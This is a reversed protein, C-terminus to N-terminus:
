SLLNANLLNITASSLRLNKLLEAGESHGIHHSKCLGAHQFGNKM